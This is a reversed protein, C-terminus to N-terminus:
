RLKKALRQMFVVMQERTCFSKYQKSGSGDGVIIGNSEAWTRAEKSWDSPGQKALQALYNDMMKNFQEQTMNDDDEQRPANITQQELLKKVDARFTDMSKGHKPFWHM